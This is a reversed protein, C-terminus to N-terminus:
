SSQNLLDESFWYKGSLADSLDNVSDVEFMPGQLRDTYGNGLVDEYYLVFRFGLVKINTKKVADLLTTFVVTRPLDMHNENGSSTSDYSQNTFDIRRSFDDHDGSELVGGGIHSSGVQSLMKHQNDVKYLQGLNGVLKPLIEGADNNERHSNLPDYPFEEGWYLEPKLRINVAKGYGVNELTLSINSGSDEHQEYDGIHRLIPKLQAKQQKILAANQGLTRVTAWALLLTGIASLGAPIVPTIGIEYWGRFENAIVVAIVSITAWIVLSLISRRLVSSYKKIKELHSNSM